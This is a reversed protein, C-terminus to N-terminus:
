QYRGMDDVFVLKPVPPSFSPPHPPVIQTIGWFREVSAFEFVILLVIHSLFELTPRAWKSRPMGFHPTSRTNMSKWGPRRSCWDLENSKAPDFSGRHLVSVGGGSNEQGGCMAFPVHFDRRLTSQRSHIVRVQAQRTNVCSPFSYVPLLEGLLISMPSIM